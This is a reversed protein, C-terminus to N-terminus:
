KVPSMQRRWSESEFQFILQVQKELSCGQPSSSIYQNKQDSDKQSLVSSDNARRLKCSALSHSKGAGM